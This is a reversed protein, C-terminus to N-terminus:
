TDCCHLVGEVLFVKLDRGWKYMHSSRQLKCVPLAQPDGNWVGYRFGPPSGMEASHLAARQTSLLTDNGSSFFSLCLTYNM